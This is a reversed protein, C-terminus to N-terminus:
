LTIRGVFESVASLMNRVQEKSYEGYQGHAAKNRLDLWATVNKQDLKNYVGLRALDANLTDAKKPVLKGKADPLATDISHREALQRLHEELVSGTMVAAPHIFNEAYLYEAMKLFDTFIEASVLRRVTVFWGGALEARAAILIKKGADVTSRSTDSLTRDLEKTYTHTEGFTQTVFSLAAARFATFEPKSVHHRFFYENDRHESRTSIVHDAQVVLEDARKLLDELKVSEMRADCKSEVCFSRRRKRRHEGAPTSGKLAIPDDYASPSAAEAL